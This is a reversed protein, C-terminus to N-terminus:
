NERPGWARMIYLSANDIYLDQNEWLEYGEGYNDWVVNLRMYGSDTGYGEEEFIFEKDDRSNELPITFAGSVKFVVSLSEKSLLSIGSPADARCAVVMEFIRGPPVEVTQGSGTIVAYWSQPQLALNLNPDYGKWKVIYINEIGTNTEVPVALMNRRSRVTYFPGRIRANLTEKILPGMFTHVFILIILIVVVAVPILVILWRKWPRRLRVEPAAM